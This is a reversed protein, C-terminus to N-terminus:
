WFTNVWIKFDEIRELVRDVLEGPNYDLNNVPVPNIDIYYEGKVTEDVPINVTVYIELASPDKVEVGQGIVISPNNFELEPHNPFIYTGTLNM